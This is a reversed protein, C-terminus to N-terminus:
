PEPGNSMISDKFKLKVRLPAVLKRDNVAVVSGDGDVLAAIVQVFCSIRMRFTDVAM